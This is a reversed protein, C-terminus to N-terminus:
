YSRDSFQGSLIVVLCVIWLGEALTGWYFPLSSLAALVQGIGVVLLPLVYGGLEYLASGVPPGLMYGIGYAVENIGTIMSIRQPFLKGVIAWTATFFAAHGIAQVTRIILVGTFFPVGSPVFIALGLAITALGSLFIGGSFARNAHIKAM